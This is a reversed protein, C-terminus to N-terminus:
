RMLIGAIICPQVCCARVALCSLCIHWQACSRHKRISLNKVQPAQKLIILFEGGPTEVVPIIWRNVKPVIQETFRKGGAKQEVFPIHNQRMYARVKGTYLSGAMGYLIHPKIM